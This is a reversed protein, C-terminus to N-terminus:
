SSQHVFQEAARNVVHGVGTGTFRQSRQYGAFKGRNGSRGLPQHQRVMAQHHPAVVHRQTVLPQVPHHIADFFMKPRHCVGAGAQTIMSNRGDIVFGAAAQGHQKQWNDPSFQTGVFPYHQM